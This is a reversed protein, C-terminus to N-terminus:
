KKPLPRAKPCKPRAPQQQGQRWEWPPVPNADAWLGRQAAQAEAQLQALRKDYPAYRTDHWAYGAQVLAQSLDLGNSLQIAAILQGRRNTTDTTVADVAVAVTQRLAIDRTFQRAQTGFAQWREPCAVGYLRVQVAKGNRLM